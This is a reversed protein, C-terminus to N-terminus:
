IARLVSGDLTNTASGYKQRGLHQGLDDGNGMTAVAARRVGNTIETAWRVCTPTSPKTLV